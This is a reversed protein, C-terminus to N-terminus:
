MPFEGIARLCDDDSCDRGCECDIGRYLRINERGERKLGTFIKNADKLNTSWEDYEDSFIHYVTKKKCDCM